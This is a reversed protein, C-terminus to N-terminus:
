GMSFEQETIFFNNAPQVLEHLQGIAEDTNLDGQNESFINIEGSM